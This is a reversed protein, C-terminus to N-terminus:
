DRITKIHEGKENFYIKYDPKGDIEVVYGKDITIGTAAISFEEIIGLSHNKDLYDLIATSGSVGNIISRMIDNANEAEVSKFSGDKSFFEVEIENPKDDNYKVEYKNWEKEIKSPIEGKFYTNLFEKSIDPLGDLAVTEKGGNANGKDKLVNGAADFYIERDDRLEIKFGQGQESYAGIKEIEEIVGNPYTSSIYSLAKEPLLMAISSPLTNDNLDIEKWVGNPYFDIEIRNKFKVDYIGNNDLKVSLIDTTSFSNFHEKIFEQANKPVDSYSIIQDEDDDGCAIFFSSVAVVTLLLLLKKM